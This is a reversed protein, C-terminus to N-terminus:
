LATAEVAEAEKAEMWKELTEVRFFIRTRVRIAPIEKRRVMDYILWSSVGIFDAAEHVNLTQRKM